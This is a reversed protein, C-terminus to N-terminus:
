DFIRLLKMNKRNLSIIINMPGEISAKLHSIPVIHVSHGCVFPGKPCTQFDEFNALKVCNCNLLMFTQRNEIFSGLKTFIFGVMM